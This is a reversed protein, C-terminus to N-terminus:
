AKAEINKLEVNPMYLGLQPRSLTCIDQPCSPLDQFFISTQREARYDNWDLHIECRHAHLCGVAENTDLFIPSAIVAKSKFDNTCNTLGRNHWMSGIKIKENRQIIKISM